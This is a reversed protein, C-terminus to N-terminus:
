FFEFNRVKKPFKFDQIKEINSAILKKQFKSTQKSIKLKIPFKTCFTLIDVSTWFKSLINLIEFVGLIKTWINSNEFFFYSFIADNKKFDVIEPWSRSLFLFFFPMEFLVRSFLRTDIKLEFSTTQASNYLISSPLKQLSIKPRLANFM